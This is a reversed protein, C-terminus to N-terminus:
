RRGTARRTSRGAGAGGRGGALVAPGGVAAARLEPTVPRRSRRAAGPGPVHDDPAPRRRSRRRATPTTRGSSTARRSGCTTARRRRGACRTPAGVSSVVPVFVISRGDATYERWAGSAVFEPAAALERTPLTTPVIPLWRRPSRWRPRSGSPSAPPRGAARRVGAGPGPRHALLLGVVPITALAWRTPVVANLLPLDTLCGWVSPLETIVGNVKVKPGLSFAALVLGAVLLAIVYARRCCAVVILGVLVLLPWGFFANEESPNQALRRATEANGALSQRAFATYSALDAGFNRM